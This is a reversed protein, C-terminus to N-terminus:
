KAENDSEEDNQNMNILQIIANGIAKKKNVIYNYVQIEVEYKKYTDIFQDIEDDINDINEITINEVRGNIVYYKLEQLSVKLPDTYEKTLIYKDDLLGPLIIKGIYKYRM